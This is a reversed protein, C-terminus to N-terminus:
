KILSVEDGKSSRKERLLLYRYLGGRGGEMRDEEEFLIEVRGEGEQIVQFNSLVGEGGLFPAM